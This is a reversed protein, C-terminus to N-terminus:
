KTLESKVHKLAAVRDLTSGAHPFIRAAKIAGFSTGPPLRCVHSAVYADIIEDAETYLKEMERVIRDLRGTNM